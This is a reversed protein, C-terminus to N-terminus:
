TLLYINLYFSVTPQYCLWVTKAHHQWSKQVWRLMWSANDLLPIHFIFWPPFICKNLRFQVFCVSWFALSECWQVQSVPYELSRKGSDESMKQQNPWYPHNAHARSSSSDWQQDQCPCFSSESNLCKDLCSALSIRPDLSLKRDCCALETIVSGRLSHHFASIFALKILKSGTHSELVYKTASLQGQKLFMPLEGSKSSHTPHHFM